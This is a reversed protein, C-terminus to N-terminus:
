NVSQVPGVHIADARELVLARFGGCIGDVFRSCRLAGVRLLDVQQGGQLSLRLRRGERSGEGNGAGDELAPAQLEARVLNFKM